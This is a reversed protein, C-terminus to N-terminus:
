GVKNLTSLPILYIQIIGILITNNVVGIVIAIHILLCSAGLKCLDKRVRQRSFIQICDVADTIVSDGIHWHAGVICISSILQISGSDQSAAISRSLEIRLSIDSTGFGCGNSRPHGLAIIPHAERQLASSQADLSSAPCPSDFFRHM